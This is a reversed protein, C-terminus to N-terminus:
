RQRRRHGGMRNIGAQYHWINSRRMRATAIWPATTTAIGCSLSTVLNAVLKLWGNDRNNGDNDSNSM